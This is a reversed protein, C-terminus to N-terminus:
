RPLHDQAGPLAEGCLIRVAYHSPTGEAIVRGEHLVVIRDALADAEELHHTTLVV